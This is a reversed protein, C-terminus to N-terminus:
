FTKNGFNGSWNILGTEDDDWYLTANGNSSTTFTTAYLKELKYQQPPLILPNVIVCDNSKKLDKKCKSCDQCVFYSDYVNYLNHNASVGISSEVILDVFRGTISCIPFSRLKRKVGRIYKGVEKCEERTIYEIARTSEIASVNCFIEERDKNIGDLINSQYLVKKSYKCENADM